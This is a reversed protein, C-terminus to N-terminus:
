EGGLSRRLISAGWVVIGVRFYSQFKRRIPPRSYATNTTGESVGNSGPQWVKITYTWEDGIASVGLRHAAADDPPLGWRWPAALM